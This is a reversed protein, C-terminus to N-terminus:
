RPHCRPDSPPLAKSYFNFSNRGKEKAQYMAIDACKLLTVVDKGDDSFISIGISVTVTVACGDLDFPRSLSDLIRHAVKAADKVRNIYDLFCRGKRL